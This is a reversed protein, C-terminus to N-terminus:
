VVVDKLSINKKLYNSSLFSFILILTTEIIRDFGVALVSLGFNFGLIESLIAVISERVGVGGPAIGVINALTAGCAFLLCELFGVDMSLFKFSFLLRGALFFLLILKILNVYLIYKPQKKLTMWGQFFYESIKLGFLKPINDLPVFLFVATGFLCVFSSFLLFNFEHIKLFAWYSLISVGVLGSLSVFCFYLATTGGFFQSYSVNYKKKLYFGKLVVGGSFPFLNGLSNVSALAIGELISLEVNFLKYYILNLLGNGVLIGIILFCIYFANSKSFLFAQLLM